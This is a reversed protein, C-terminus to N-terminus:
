PVYIGLKAICDGGKEGFPVYSIKLINGNLGTRPWDNNRSFEQVFCSVFNMFCGPFIGFINESILIYSDVNLLFNM